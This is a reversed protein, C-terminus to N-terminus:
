GCAWAGLESRARAKIRALCDSVLAESTIEGTAIKKSAETASLLNHGAPGRYRFILWQIFSEYSRMLSQAAHQNMFWSM